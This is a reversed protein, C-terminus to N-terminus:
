PIGVLPRDLSRVSLCGLLRVRILAAGLGLHRREVLCPLDEGFGFELLPVVAAVVRIILLRLSLRGETMMAARGKALPRGEASPERSTPTM